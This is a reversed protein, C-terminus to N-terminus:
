CTVRATSPWGPRRASGPAQPRGATARPDRSVPARRRHVHGWRDDGARLVHRHSVAVMRVRWNGTDSILLSGAPGVAVGQPGSIEAHAAPGGDGSSGDFPQGTGAVTYIHGATMARGYFRGTSAAVVRARNNAADAIVLNGAGDFTTGAPNDLKASTAPGGDGSFGRSRTGAVTYIDGATMARRYFTGTTVPVVRIRSNDTDAIVLNGAGDVTVADPGHLEAKTALGGEGSFGPHGTGAVTYIDGATMARGYSTGTTVAVVRVKNSGSDAIVLNGAGDVVAGEPHALEASTAPGGDGSSGSM